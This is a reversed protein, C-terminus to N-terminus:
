PRTLKENFREWDRAWGVSRRRALVLRVTQVFCLAVVVCGAWIGLAATFATGAIEPVTVPATTLNGNGDLWVPVTAGAPTEPAVSFSATRETNDPLWWQVPVDAYGSDAGGFEGVLVPPVDALTIATAPRREAAQQVATARGHAYSNSGISAAVPIAVLCVLIALVFVIAELRDFHRALPNRGPRVLRSTRVLWTTLTGTM